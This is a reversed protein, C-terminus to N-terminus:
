ELVWSIFPMLKVQISSENRSEDYLQFALIVELLEDLCVVSFGTSVLAGIGDIGSCLAIGLAESLEKHRCIKHMDPVRGRM